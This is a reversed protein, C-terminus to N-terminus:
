LSIKGLHVNFTFGFSLQAEQSNPYYQSFFDKFTKWSLIVYKVHLLLICKLLVCYNLEIDYMVYCICIRSVDASAPYLHRQTIEEKINMIVILLRM